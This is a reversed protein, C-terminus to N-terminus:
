PSRGVPREEPLKASVKEELMPSLRCSRMATSSCPMNRPRVFAVAHFRLGSLAGLRRGITPALEALRQMALDAILGHLSPRRDVSDGLAQGHVVVLGHQQGVFALTSAKHLV